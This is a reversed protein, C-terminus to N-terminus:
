SGAPAIALPYYFLDTPDYRRKIQRLRGLNAGWYVQQAQTRNLRGDAYNIYMGWDDQKLPQTTTDVWGNLFSFGDSPYTDGDGVRDYFQILFLKDRHAYATANLAVASIASNKGGHMDMQLWWQRNWPM